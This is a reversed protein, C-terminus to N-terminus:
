HVDIKCSGQQIFINGQEKLELHKLHMNSNDSIELVNINEDEANRLSILELDM